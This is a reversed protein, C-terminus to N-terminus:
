SFVRTMSQMTHEMANTPVDVISSARTAMSPDMVYQQAIARLLFGFFGYSLYPEMTTLAHKHFEHALVRTMSLVDAPFFADPWDTQLVPVSGQRLRVYSFAYVREQARHDDVTYEAELVDPIMTYFRAHDPVSGGKLTDAMHQAYEELLLATALTLDQISATYLTKAVASGFMVGSEVFDSFGGRRRYRVVGPQEADGYFVFELVPEPPQQKGFLGFM